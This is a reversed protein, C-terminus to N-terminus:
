RNMGQRKRLLSVVALAEKVDDRHPSLSLATDLEREADEYKGTEKYILGLDRHAEFHDPMLNIVMKYENAASELRGMLLLLDGLAKRNAVNDPDTAVLISYLVMLNDKAQYNWPNAEIAARFKEVAEQYRGESEYAVGLNTLARANIPSKRVADEWLAVRDKWVANRAYAAMSFLLVTLSAVLFGAARTKRSGSGGILRFIAVAAATLLGALPLYMRYENILNPLPFISSEVSLTIFFWFIGFSVIRMEPAVGARRYLYIGLAALFLLFMLSSIIGVDIFNDYLPYDYDINQNFPFLFLRLYTVIVRFQTILYNFRPVSSWSTAGEASLGMVYISTLPIILATLLIPLLKTIRKLRNGEFFFIEFLVVMAPLTIANQKTKMALVASLVAGCYFLVRTFPGSVTRLGRSFDIAPEARYGSLRWGAYLVLSLMFFFGALSTLRQYIYTVAEIQVPHSVFFLATILGIARSHARLISVRLFPTEFYIHILVYVLLANCIHISINVLHYGEVKFGHLRYNLAFTLFAVYRHVLTKYIEEESRVADIPYTIDKVFWTKELFLGEDWQFPVHLTNSYCFAGVAAIVLIHLYTRKWFIDSFIHRFANRM